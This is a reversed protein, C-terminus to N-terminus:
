TSLQWLTPRADTRGSMITGQPLTEKYSAYRSMLDARDDKPIATVNREGEIWDVAYDLPALIGRMEEAADESWAECILVPRHKEILRAAGKLVHAEVGEVDIKIAAVHDIPFRNDYITSAAFEPRTELLLDLPIARVTEVHDAPQGHNTLGEGPCLTYAGYVHPLQIVEDSKWAALHMPLIRTDMENRQINQVLRGFTMASPEFAISLIDERLCAAVLSFLGAFAGVDLVCANQPANRVIFSWFTLSEHEDFDGDRLQKVIPDDEGWPMDISCMRISGQDVPIDTVLSRYLPRRTSM